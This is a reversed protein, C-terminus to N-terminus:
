NAQLIQCYIPIISAKYKNIVQNGVSVAFCQIGQVTEYNSSEVNKSALHLFRETETSALFWSEDDHAPKSLVFNALSHVM